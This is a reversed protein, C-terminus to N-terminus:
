NSLLQELEAITKDSLAADKKNAIITMIRENSEKKAKRNNIDEQESLKTNLVDLAIDFRIRPLEDEQTNKLLFSKRLTEEIAKELKVALADLDKITLDWLQETSLYGKDTLFRLKLQTAKKFDTPKTM